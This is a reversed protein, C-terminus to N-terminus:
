APVCRYQTFPRLGTLIFPEDANIATLNTFPIEYTVNDPAEVEVVVQHIESFNPVLKGNRRLKVTRSSKGRVEPM